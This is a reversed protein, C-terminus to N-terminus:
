IVALHQQEVAQMQRSNWQKRDVGMGTSDHPQLCHLWGVFLMFVAVLSLNLM